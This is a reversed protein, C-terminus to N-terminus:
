NNGGKVYADHFREGFYIYASSTGNSQLLVHNSQFTTIGRM